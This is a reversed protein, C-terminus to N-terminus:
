LCSPTTSVSFTGGITTDHRITVSPAKIAISTGDVILNPGLTASTTAQLTQTGSLTQNDLLVDAPCPSVSFNITGSDADRANNAENSEAVSDLDDVKVFFTYDGASLSGPVAVIRNACNTSDAGGAALGSVGCVTTSRADGSDLVADASFYFALDFAGVAAGGQNEVTVSVMVTGGTEGTTPGTLSTVLLDAGAQTVTLTKDAISITGVRLSGTPNPAFTFSLAGNGSGFTPSSVSLWDDNNLANWGCRAGAAVSVSDSGAGLGVGVGSQSLSYGCTEAGYGMAVRLKDDDASDVRIWSDTYPDSWTSGPLLTVDHFDASGLSGGNTCQGDSETSPVGPQFDLLRPENPEPGAPQEYHVLAGNFISGRRAALTIDYDGEFQRYEIWLWLNNPGGRRFRLSRIGVQDVVPRVLYTGDTEVRLFGSGSTSWGLQAKHAATYHGNLVFSGFHYLIGMISYVGGYECRTGADALSGLILNGFELSNAHRLGMNHGGEHGGIAVMYSSPSDGDGISIWSISATVSGEDTSLSTCGVSGLGYFGCVPELFIVFVRRYNNFDIDEDAAQIAKDRVQSSFQSSGCVETVNISYPGCVDGTAWTLGESNEEWFGRLSAQMQSFLVDEFHSPTAFTPLTEGAFEVLIVAIRQEGFVSCGSAGKEGPVANTVAIADGIGMGEVTLEQGCVLEPVPGAFYAGLDGTETKLNILTRTTGLDFRDEVLVEVPAKWTGLREIFSRLNARSRLTSAVEDPLRLTLAVAPNLEMLREMAEARDRLSQLLPDTEAIAETV